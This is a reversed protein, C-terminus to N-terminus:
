FALATLGLRVSLNRDLYPNGAVWGATKAEVELYPQVRHAGVAVRLGVLGGAKSAASRFLQDKPQLWLALRPTLAFTRGALRFPFRLLQLDVGPSAGEANVYARATAALRIRGRRVFATADIAYGFPALEHRLLATWTTGDPRGFGRMGVLHPDLFNLFTLWGQLRLYDREEPTLHSPKRYRDIGVGSPHVGRAQYPEAPRHLDYVWATFDLGTFDRRRVDAGDEANIQDTLADGESTGSYVIYLSSNLKILWARFTVGTPADFFFSDKELELLLDHEGEIGASSLRVQEAPHESKLRILDEDRVRSVAITSAFIRFKYVDNFSGIDRRSLVARHYEEHLWADGLPLYYAVLELGAAATLGWTGKSRLRRGVVDLLHYADKSLMLSQRMSPFGGGPLLFPTDLIPVDLPVPRPTEAPAPEVGQAPRPLGLLLLLSGAALLM